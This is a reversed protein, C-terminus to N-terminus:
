HLDRQTSDFAAQTKFIPGDSRSIDLLTTFLGGAVLLPLWFGAVLLTLSFQEGEFNTVCPKFFRASLFDKYRSFHSQNFCLQYTM